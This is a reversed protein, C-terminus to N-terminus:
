LRITHTLCCRSPDNILSAPKYLNNTYYNCWITGQNVEPNLSLCPICCFIMGASVELSEKLTCNKASVYKRTKLNNAFIAFILNEGFNRTIRYICICWNPKLSSFGVFDVDTVQYDGLWSQVICIWSINLLCPKNDVGLITAFCFITRLISNYFLVNASCFHVSLFFFRM